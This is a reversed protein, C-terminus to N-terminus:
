LDLGVLDDCEGPLPAQFGVHQITPLVVPEAVMISARVNIIAVRHRRGARDETDARQLTMPVFRALRGYFRNGTGTVIGHREAQIGDYFDAHSGDLMARAGRVMAMRTPRDNAELMLPLQVVYEATTRLAVQEPADEPWISSEDLQDPNRTREWTGVADGIVIHPFRARHDGDAWEPHIEIVGDPAAQATGAIGARLAPAGPVRYTGRTLIEALTERLAGDEDHTAKLPYDALLAAFRNRTAQDIVSM